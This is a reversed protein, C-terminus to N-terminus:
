MRDKKSVSHPRRESLVEATDNILDITVESFDASDSEYHVETPIHACDLDDEYPNLSTNILVSPSKTQKLRDMKLPPINVM